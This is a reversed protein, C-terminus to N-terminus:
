YKTPYVWNGKCGADHLKKAESKLAGANVVMGKRAREYNGYQTNYSGGLQRCVANRAEDCTMEAQTKSMATINPYRIRFSKIARYFRVKKM